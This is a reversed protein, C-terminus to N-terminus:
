YEGDVMLTWRPYALLIIMHFFNLKLTYSNNSLQLSTKVQVEIMSPCIQQHGIKLQWSKLGLSHLLFLYTQSIKDRPCIM